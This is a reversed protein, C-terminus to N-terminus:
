RAKPFSGKFLPIQFHGNQVYGDPHFIPVVTWAYDEIFLELDKTKVEKVEVIIHMFPDFEQDKYAFWDDYYQIQGVPCEWNIQSSLVLENNETEDEYFKGPPNLSYYCVYPSNNGTNHVADLAFKFGSQVQYKAFFMFDIFTTSKTYQIHQDCFKFIEKSTLDRNIKYFRIVLNASDIIPPDYRSDRFMFLNKENERM